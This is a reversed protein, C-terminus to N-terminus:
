FFKLKKRRSLGVIEGVESRARLRAGRVTPEKRSGSKQIWEDKLPVRTNQRIAYNRFINPDPEYNIDKKIKPPSDDGILKFRAAITRQVYDAGTKEALNRPLNDAIKRYKGKSKVFVDWSKIIRAAQEKSIRKKPISKPPATFLGTRFSPTNVQTIKPRQLQPQISIQTQLQPTPQIQLEFNVQPQPQIQDPIQRTIEKDKTRARERNDVRPVLGLDVFDIDSDKPLSLPSFIQGEDTREYQGTGAYQSPTSVLTNESSMSIVGSGSPIKTTPKINTPKIASQIAEVTKSELIQPSSKINKLIKTKSIVTGVEEEQKKAKSIGLFTDIGGRLYDIIKTGRTNTRVPVSKGILISTEEDIKGGFIKSVFFAKDKQGKVKTKGLGFIEFGEDLNKTVQGTKELAIDLEIPAIQGVQVSGFVKPKTYIRRTKGTTTDLLIDSEYIVGRTGSKFASIEEGPSIIVSSEGGTLFYKDPKLLRRERTSAVYRLNVQEEGSASTVTSIEKSLFKTDLKPYGLVNKLGSYSKLGLSGASLLLGGGALIRQEKPLDKNLVQNLSVTGLGIDLGIGTGSLITRTSTPIGSYVAKGIAGVESGIFIGGGLLGIQGVSSPLKSLGGLYLNGVTEKTSQVKLQAQFDQAYAVARNYEDLEEQTGVFEGNVFKDSYKNNITEILKNYNKVTYKNELQKKAGESIVAFREIRGFSGLDEYAQGFTYEPYKTSTKYGFLNDPNRFDIVRNAGLQNSSTLTNDVKSNGLGDNFTDIPININTQKIPVPTYQLEPATTIYGGGIATGVAGSPPIPTSYQQSPDIFVGGEISSGIAGPPLQTPVKINRQMSKISYAKEGYKRAEASLGSGTLPLGKAVLKQVLKIEAVRKNYQSVSQEAPNLIESEYKQLEKQQSQIQSEAQGIDRAFKQRQLPSTQRITSQKKIQSEAQQIDRQREALSRRQQEVQQRAQNIQSSYSSFDVM